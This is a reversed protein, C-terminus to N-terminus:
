HEPDAADPLTMRERYFHAQSEFLRAYAGDRAILEDHSGAELIAGHELVYIYDAQRITSLRHSIVLASRRGIISRFDKFLEFEATPDLASTPEDLVIIRSDPLFARALAVKQWQGQSIEQGGDFMRTLPTDYGAPLDRLFADAGSKIAAEVVRPSDEPVRVDGLRINERASAAYRAYDQFIVSFLRRYPEIGFERVDQGDLTIRGRSPDYLRTLLKILSTKGSGNAGVLAVVRGEPIHLHIDRLVERTTGPYTFGVGEVRLGDGRAPPLPAAVPADVLAPQIDLFEFLLGVYLQDEYLQSTQQVMEQGMAQARQFIVLFLALDGVSNRGAVTEYALFGLAGFFALTGLATVLLELRTRRAGIRLQEDRVQGRLARYRDALYHGFHGLRIEKAHTDSTMLWDLYGAQREMQTRRKRWDYLHRTFYLRVALAPLVVVALIALLLWNISGMLVVVGGLLLVNKGLMLLNTVVQAPRQSGAARARQLTDFYRPSEFFALDARIAGAHILGNIHEALYLGQAERAFASVSRAAMFALTCAGTLVVDRLLGDMAPAGAAGLVSTVSDILSKILYLAALGFGIEAAMMLTGLVTWGPASAWLLPVMRRLARLPATFKSRKSM